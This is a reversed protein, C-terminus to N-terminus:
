AGFHTGRRKLNRRQPCGSGSGNEIAQTINIIEGMFRNLDDQQFTEPPRKWGLHQPLQEHETCFCVM